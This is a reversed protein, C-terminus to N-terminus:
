LATPLLHGGLRLAVSFGRLLAQPSSPLVSRISDEFGVPCAVPPLFSAGTPAVVRTRGQDIRFDSTWRRFCRNRNPGATGRGYRVIAGRSRSWRPFSVVSNGSHVMPARVIRDWRSRPSSFLMAPFF